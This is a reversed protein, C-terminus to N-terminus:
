KKAKENTFLKEKELRNISDLSWITLRGPILSPALLLSNLNNVLCSNFGELNDITKNEKSVIVLPGIKSKYPRGRSKGRGPRITRELRQLDKELGIKKFLNFLEKTKTINELDDIIIPLSNSYSFGNKLLLEKNISASIASRIAKKREKKNIKQTWDRGPKPPHARRGGTTGPAETGVWGFQRGRHWVTKRPVRSMGHGYSTKYDRRRRSLKAKYRKGAREYAGYAQRLSNRVSLASKRIVDLRIEESFHNPLDITKIKEGTTNFVDAKM